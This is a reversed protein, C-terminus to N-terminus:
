PVSSPCPHAHAASACIANSLEVFQILTTRVGPISLPRLCTMSCLELSLLAAAARATLLMEAKLSCAEAIITCTLSLSLARSLFLSLLLSFLIPTCQGGLVAATKTM